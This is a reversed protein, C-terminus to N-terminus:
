IGAKHLTELYQNAVGVLSSGPEVKQVLELQRKAEKVQGSWLLLLGLHFRVSASQPFTRTLPSRCFRCTPATSM